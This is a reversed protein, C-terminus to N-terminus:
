RPSWINEEIDVIKEIRGKWQPREMGRRPKDPSALAPAAVMEGYMYKQIFFQIHALFPTMDKRVEMETLGLHSM